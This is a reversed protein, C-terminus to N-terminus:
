ARQVRNTPGGSRQPHRNPSWYDMGRRVGLVLPWAIVLTVTSMVFVIGVVNVLLSFEPDPTVTGFDVVCTSLFWALALVSLPLLVHGLRNATSRVFHARISVLCWLGMAGDLLGRIPLGTKWEGSADDATLLAIAAAWLWAWWPM